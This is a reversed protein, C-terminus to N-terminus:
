FFNILYAHHFHVNVFLYVYCFLASSNSKESFVGFDFNYSMVHEVDIEKEILSTVRKFGGVTNTLGKFGSNFGM